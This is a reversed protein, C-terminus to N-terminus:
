GTVEVVLQGPSTIEIPAGGSLACFCVSDSTLAPLGNVTVSASGPSWPAGVAPVCPATGSPNLTAPNGPSNCLGFTAINVMSVFDMVTALSAGATVLSGEPEVVLPVPTKGMPCMLMAGAVVLQAM